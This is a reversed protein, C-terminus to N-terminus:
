VEINIQTEFVTDALYDPHAEQYKTWENGYKRFFENAVEFYDCMLAKSKDTALKALNEIQKKVEGRIHDDIDNEKKPLLEIVNGNIDTKMRKLAVSATFKVYPKGDKMEVSMGSKKSSIGVSAKGKMGLVSQTDEVVFYDYTKNEDLFVFGRTEDETLTDVYRGDKFVCVKTCDYVGVTKQEDQGKNTDPSLDKVFEVESLFSASSPTTLKEVFYQLFNSTSNTKKGSEQIITQLAFSVMTDIPSATEFMEKATGKCTALTVGDKFADSFVFFGLQERLDHQMMGEGLLIFGTQGMSPNKGSTQYINQIALPITDGRGILLKSKAVTSGGDSAENPSIVEMTIEFEDKEATYDIGLGLAIARDSLEMRIYSNAIWLACVAVFLIFAMRLHKKLQSKQGKDKDKEMNRKNQM